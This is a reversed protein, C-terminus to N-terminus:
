LAWWLFVAVGIGWLALSVAIASLLAKLPITM